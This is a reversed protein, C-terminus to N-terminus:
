QFEIKITQYGKVTDKAFWWTCAGHYGINTIISKMNYRSESYDLVAADFVVGQKAVKEIANVYEDYTGYLTQNVNYYNSEINTCVYYDSKNWVHDLEEMYTDPLNFYTHKENEVEQDLGTVPDDWTADVHYWEGNIKVQNWAHRGGAIYRCDIGVCNLMLELAYAYGECVAVHNVLAGYATHYMPKSPNDTGYRCHSTLYDHLALEKEYDSMTDNVYEDLVERVIREEEIARKESSPISVGNIVSQYVYYAESHSISFTSKDIGNGVSNFTYYDMTAYTRDIYYNLNQIDSETIGATYVTISDSYDRLVEARFTEALEKRSRAPDEQTLGHIEEENVEEEADVLDEETSESPVETDQEEEQDQHNKQETDHRTDKETSIETNIETDKETNKETSIATKKETNSETKKETTTDKNKGTVRETTDNKRIESPMETSTDSPGDSTDQVPSVQATSKEASNSEKGDGFTIVGWVLVISGLTSFIFFLIGGLFAKLKRDDKEM